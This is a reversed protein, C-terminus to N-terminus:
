ENLEEKVIEKIHGVLRSTTAPSIGLLQALHKQKPRVKNIHLLLQWKGVRENRQQQAVLLENEKVALRCIEPSPEVLENLIKRALPDLRDQIRELHERMDIESVIDTTSMEIEFNSTEISILQGRRDRHRMTGNWGYKFMQMMRRMAAVAVFDSIDKEAIEGCKFVPDNQWRRFVETIRLRAEQVFEDKTDPDDTWKNAHVQMMDEHEELLEELTVM